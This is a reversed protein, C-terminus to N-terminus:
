IVQCTQGEPVGRQRCGTETLPRHRKKVLPRGSGLNTSNFQRESPEPELEERIRETTVAQYNIIQLDGVSALTKWRSCSNLRTYIMYGSTSWFSCDTGWIDRQSDLPCSGGLSWVRRPEAPAPITTGKAHQEEFLWINSKAGDLPPFRYQLM